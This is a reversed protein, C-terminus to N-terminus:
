ARLYVIYDTPPPAIGADRLLLAIQSRHHTGHNVIHACIDRLENTFPQGKSNTYEIAVEFDAETCAELHTLWDQTSTEARRICTELDDDDWVATRAGDTDQVRGLWIEQARMIHSLLRIIRSWAADHEDVTEVATIIERNAWRTYHFLDIFYSKLNM